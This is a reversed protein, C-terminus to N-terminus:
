PPPRPRRRDHSRRRPQFTRGSALGPANDVELLQRRRLPPARDDPPDPHRGGRRVPVQPPNVAFTRVDGFRNWLARGVALHVPKIEVALTLGDTATMESLDANVSRLGGGVEREGAFATTLALGKARLDHLTVESLANSLRIQAAKAKQAGVDSAGSIYEAAANCYDEVTSRSLGALGDVLALGTPEPPKPV